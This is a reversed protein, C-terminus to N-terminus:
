ARRKRLGLAIQQRFVLLMALGFGLVLTLSDVAGFSLEFPGIYAPASATGPTYYYGFEATALATSQVTAICGGQSNKSVCAGNPANASYALPVQKTNVPEPPPYGYYQATISDQSAGCANITTSFGGNANTLVYPNGSITDPILGLQSTCIGNGSVPDVPKCWQPNSSPASYKSACDLYSQYEGSNQYQKQSCYSQPDQIGTGQVGGCGPGTPNSWCTSLCKAVDPYKAACSSLAGTVPCTSALDAGDTYSSATQGKQVVTSLPASNINCGFYQPVLLGVSPPSCQNYMGIGTALDPFANYSPSYTAQKSNQVRYNSTGIYANSYVPNSQLCDPPAHPTNYACKVAGVQQQADTALPDYKVFNLDKNYYLYIQQGAPLPTFVTGYDSYTGATGSISITTLNANNTDIQPNVKLTVTVPNAVDAEVPVYVQNGFRDGMVYVLQQYGFFSYLQGTGGATYKRANIFLNLPSDYAVDKQFDFLAVTTPTQTNIFNFDLAPLCTQVGSSNTVCDNAIKDQPQAQTGPVLSAGYNPTAFYSPSFSEYSGYDGSLGPFGSAASQSYRQTRYSVQQTAGLVAQNNASCDISGLEASGSCYTVNVWMSGFLRSNQVYYQIQPPLVLGVDTLNAIYYPTGINSNVRNIDLLYTQGGEITASLVDSAGNTLASSYVNVTQDPPKSPLTITCANTEDGDGGGAVFTAVGSSYTQTLKYKYSYPVVLYGSIYSSISQTAPSTTQTATTATSSGVTLTQSAVNNQSQSTDSASVTYTGPKLNCTSGPSDACNNATYPKSPNSTITYQAGGPTPGAVVIPGITQGNSTSTITIEVKDTSPVNQNNQNTYPATATITGTSGALLFGQMNLAPTPNVTISYSKTSKTGSGTTESAQVTHSGPALCAALASCIAYDAAGHQSAYSNGDILIQVSDAPSVKAQATIVDLAGWNVTTQQITLSPPGNDNVRGGGSGGGSSAAALINIGQGALTEVRPSGISELYRFPNTVSYLPPQMNAIYDVQKGNQTVPALYYCGPGSTVGDGPSPSDTYCSYGVSSDFYKTYNEVGFTTSILENYQPNPTIPCFPPIAWCLHSSPSPNYKFLMTITGNISASFGSQYISGSEPALAPGIPPFGGTYGSPMSGPHYTCKQTSTSSCFTVPKASSDTPIINASLVWGYPPFTQGPAYAGSTLGYYTSSASGKATCFYKVGNGNCAKSSAYYGCQTDGPPSCTPSPTQASSYCISADAGQLLCGQQSFMDNFLTPNIPINGGGPDLVRLVLMDFNTGGSDTCGFCNLYQTQLTGLVGSLTNTKEGVIGRWDDLVYIYGNINALGIPHHFGSNDFDTSTDNNNSPNSYVDLPCPTTGSCAASSFSYGYLGGRNLYYPINLSAQVVGSSGAIDYTLDIATQYSLDSGSFIYVGGSSPSAAYVLTGSSSVAIEQLVPAGSTASWDGTTYTISSPTPPTAGNAAPLKIIAPGVILSGGIGGAMGAVFVDGNADASINMPAFSAINNCNNGSSCSSASTAGAVYANIYPTLDITRIVYSTTNQLDVIGQWYTNWNSDWQSQSGATQVSGPESGTTNYYGRPILRIVSICYPDAGAIGGNGGSSYPVEKIVPPRAIGAIGGSGGNGGGSSVGSGCGTDSQNLVFVYDNPIAAISIPNAINPSSYALGPLNKRIGQAIAPMNQLVSVASGLQTNLRGADSLSNSPTSALTGKYNFYLNSPTDIPLMDISTAPTNYNWPSFIDYSHYMVQGNPSPVIYNFTLYPLVVSNFAQFTIPNKSSPDNIQVDNFPVHTNQISQLALTETYTYSYTCSYPASVSVCTTQGSSSTSCDSEVNPNSVTWTPNTTVTQSDPAANGFNAFPASWSWIDNQAYAPIPEFVYSNASYSSAISSLSGDQLMPSYSIDHVQLNGAGFVQLPQVSAREWNNSDLTITVPLQLITQLPQASAACVDGAIFPYQYQQQYTGQNQSTYQYGYFLANANPPFTGPPLPAPPNNQSIKVSLPCSLLGPANYFNYQGLDHVPPSTTTPLPSTAGGIGSGPNTNYTTQFTEQLYCTFSQPPMGSVTLQSNPDTGISPSVKPCSNSYQTTSDAGIAHSFVAMSLLSLLILFAINAKGGRM